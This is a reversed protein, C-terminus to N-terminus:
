YIMASLASVASVASLQLSLGEIQGLIPAAGPMTIYLLAGSGIDANVATDRQWSFPTESRLCLRTSVAARM